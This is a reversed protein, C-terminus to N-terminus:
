KQLYQDPLGGTEREISITHINKAGANKNRTIRKHILPSPPM